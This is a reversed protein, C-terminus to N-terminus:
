KQTLKKLGKLILSISRAIDDCYALEENEKKTLGNNLKDFGSKKFTLTINEDIADLAKEGSLSKVILEAAGGYAGLVFTPTQNKLAIYAEEVIGPYKESYGETKGGVIIRAYTKKAVKNRLDTLNSTAKGVQNFQFCKSMEAKREIYIKPDPLHFLKIRNYKESDFCYNNILEQLIDIFNISKKYNISGAYLLNADATLLYRCLEIYFTTLHLETRAIEGFTNPISISIGINKGALFKGNYHKVCPLLTATAFTHNPKYKGLIKLENVNLPPEPYLLIEDNDKLNMLLTYLEPPYSFIKVNKRNKEYLNVAYKLFLENYKIKLSELLIEYIIEKCRTDTIKKHGLHIAKINAGYPFRRIECDSLADLIIIPCGKRKASLVEKQCWERSSYADTYIAVLVSNTIDNEIAKEFDVGKPIDKVDIFTKLSTKSSIFSDIEYAYSIGDTRAHSLFIKISPPINATKKETARERNFLLRCFEHALDFCLYKIREIFEKEKNKNVKCITPLQIFNIRSLDSSIRKASDIDCVAVPYIVSKINNNCFKFLSSIFKRWDNDTIMNENILIIFAIKETNAVSNEFYKLDPTTLYYIPIGINSGTFDTKDRSFTRFITEAYKRGEVFKLHWIVFVKLPNLYGDNSKNKGTM